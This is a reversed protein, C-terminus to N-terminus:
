GRIATVRHNLQFDDADDAKRLLGAAVQRAHKAPYEVDVRNIRMVVFDGALLCEDAARILAFAVKHATPTLMEVRSMDFLMVVLPGEARVAIKDPVRTMIGSRKEIEISDDPPLYKNM